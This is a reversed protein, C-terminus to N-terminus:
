TTSNKLDLEQKITYCLKKCPIPIKLGNQVKDYM